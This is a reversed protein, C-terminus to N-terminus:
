GHHTSNVGARKAKLDKACSDCIRHFIVRNGVGNPEIEISIPAEATYAITMPKRGSSSMMWIDNPSRTENCVMNADVTYVDDSRTTCTKVKLPKGCLQCRTVNLFEHEM